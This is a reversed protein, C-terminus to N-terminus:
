GYGYEESEEYDYSYLSPDIQV